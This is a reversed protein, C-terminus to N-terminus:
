DQHETLIRETNKFHLKAVKRLEKEGYREVFERGKIDVMKGSGKPFIFDYKEELAM